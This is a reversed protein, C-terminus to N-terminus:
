KIEVLFCFYELNEYKEHKEPSQLKSIFQQQTQEYERM